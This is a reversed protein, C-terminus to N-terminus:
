RDHSSSVRVSVHLSLCVAGSFSGGYTAELAWIHLPTSEESRREMRGGRESWRCEAREEKTRAADRARERPRAKSPLTDFVDFPSRAAAAVKHNGKYACTHIEAIEAAGDM